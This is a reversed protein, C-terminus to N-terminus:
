LDGKRDDSKPPEIQNKAATATIIISYKSKGKTTEEYSVIYGMKVWYDLIAKCEKRIKDKKQKTAAEASMTKYITEYLITNSIKAKPNKIAEIRRILYGQLVIVDNTKNLPTNLLEIPVQAIQNKGAAYRYLIPTTLLRYATVRQGNMTVTMSEAAILAGSYTAQLDKYATLEQSADITLKSFLCKEISRRIEEIKEPNIYESNTKGAMTRFVMSPTIFKNGAIFLSVIADHVERDFATFGKNSLIDVGEYSFTVRTTIPKASQRSEMRLFQEGGEAFFDRTLLDSVKDKTKIVQKPVTVSVIQRHEEEEKQDAYDPFIDTFIQTAPKIEDSFSLQEMPAPLDNNKKM